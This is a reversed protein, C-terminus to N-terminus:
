ELGYSMKHRIVRNANVTDGLDLFIGLLNNAVTGNRPELTLSREDFEIAKTYERKRQYMAGIDGIVRANGPELELRKSLYVLASDYQQNNIVIVVLNNLSNLDSPNVSLNKRYLEEAHGTNGAFHELVGYNYLAHTHEPYIELSKEFSERAKRYYESRTQQNSASQWIQMYEYGLSSYVRSSNPSVKVGAEFLALNNKWDKNRDITIVSYVLFIAALPIIFYLRRRADSPRSEWGTVKATLFVLAIIYAVSPTLLFREGLVSGILIFINSVLAMSFIFFWFSYGFISKSRFRILSYIGLALYVALTLLTWPNAFSVVPIQNYSYDWSLPYPIILLLLYKGLILIATALRDFINDAGSLSNNILTMQEGFTVTDLISARLIFYIGAFFLFPLTLYVIKRLQINRFYYLTLPIIVLLAVAQEKTMLALFYSVSSLILDSVRKTDTYQVLKLLALVFFLLQLIEDRSKINAVDETHVPHAAFLLVMILGFWAPQKPFLRRILWYLLICALAYYIVNFIHHTRPNSGWIGTEVALSLLTVPRYSQDNRQNFGYLFGWSFIDPIGAFGKQVFVNGRTVIDDDLAYSYNLTNGYLIFVFGVIVVPYLYWEVRVPIESTNKKGAHKSKRVNKNSM